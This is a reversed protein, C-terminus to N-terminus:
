QATHVIFGIQALTDAVVTVARQGQQALVPSILLFQILEPRATVRVIKQTMGRFLKGPMGACQQFIIHCGRQDQDTILATM